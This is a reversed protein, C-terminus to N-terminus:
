IKVGGKIKTKPTDLHLPQQVPKFDGEHFPDRIGSGIMKGRPPNWFGRKRPFLAKKRRFASLERTFTSNKPTFGNSDRTFM